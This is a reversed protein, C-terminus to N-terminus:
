ALLSVLGGRSGIEGRLQEEIAALGNELQEVLGPSSDSDSGFFSFTSDPSSVVERHFADVTFTFRDLTDELSYSAGFPSYASTDTNPLSRRSYTLRMGAGVDHHVLGVIRAAEDEDEGDIDSLLDSLTSDLAQLGSLVAAPSDRLSEGPTKDETYPRSQHAGEALFLAALFGSSDNGLSFSGPATDNVITFEGYTFDYSATVGEGSGNIASIVDNLDDHKGRPRVRM